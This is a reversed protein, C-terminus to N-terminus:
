GAFVFEFDVVGDTVVSGDRAPCWVGYDGDEVIRVFGGAKRVVAGDVTETLENLGQGTTLFYDHGGFTTEFNVVVGYIPDDALSRRDVNVEITGEHTGLLAGLRAGGDDCTALDAADFQITLTYPGSAKLSTKRLGGSVPQADAVFVPSSGDSMTSLFELTASGGDGGPKGGGGGPKFLGATETGGDTGTPAEQCAVGALGFALAAGLCLAPGAGARRRGIRQEKM